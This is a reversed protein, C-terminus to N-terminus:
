EGEELPWVGWRATSWGLYGLENIMWQSIYADAAEAPVKLKGNYQAIWFSEKGIAPPTM